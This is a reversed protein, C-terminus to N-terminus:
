LGMIKQRFWKTTGWLFSAETNETFEPPFFIFSNRCSRLWFQYCRGDCCIWNWRSRGACIVGGCLPSCLHFLNKDNNNNIQKEARAVTKDQLCLSSASTPSIPPLHTWGSQKQEWRWRRGSNASKHIRLMSVPEDLDRRLGRKCWSLNRQFCQFIWNVWGQM